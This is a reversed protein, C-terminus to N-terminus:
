QRCCQCEPPGCRRAASRAGARRLQRAQTEARGADSSRAVAPANTQCGLRLTPLRVEFQQHRVQWRRPFKREIIQVAIPSLARFRVPERRRPQASSASSVKVDKEQLDLVVCEEDESSSCEAALDYFVDGLDQALAM